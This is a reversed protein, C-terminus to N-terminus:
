LRAHGPQGIDEVAEVCLIRVTRPAEIEFQLRAVIESPLAVDGILLVLIEIRDNRQDALVVDDPAGVVRVGVADPRIRLANEVLVAGRGRRAHAAFGGALVHGAEVVEVSLLRVGGRTVGAFAPMWPVWM